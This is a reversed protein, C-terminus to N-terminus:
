SVAKMGNITYALTVKISYILGFYSIVMLTISFVPVIDLFLDVALQIGPHIQGGLTAIQTTVQSISGGQIVEGYPLTLNFGSEFIIIIGIIGATGFLSVIAISKIGKLALTGISTGAVALDTVPASLPARIIDSLMGWIAQHSARFWYVFVIFGVLLSIWKAFDNWAIGISEGGMTTGELFDFYFDYGGASIGFESTLRQASKSFMGQSPQSFANGIITNAEAQKVSQEASVQAVTSNADTGNADGKLSNIANVIDQLTAYQTGNEDEYEGRLSLLEVQMNRLSNEIDALETMRELETEKDVIKGAIAEQRDFINILNQNNKEELIELQKFIETLMPVDNDRDLQYYTSNLEELYDLNKQSKNQLDTLDSTLNDRIQELRTKIETLKTLQEGTLYQQNAELVTVISILEDYDNSQDLQSILSTIETLDVEPINVEPPSVNVIVTVNSDTQTTSTSGDQAELYVEWNVNEKDLSLNTKSTVLWTSHIELVRAIEGVALNGPSATGIVYDGVSVAFSQM